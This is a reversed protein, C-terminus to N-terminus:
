SPQWACHWFLSATALAPLANAWSPKTGNGALAEGMHGPLQMVPEVCIYSGAAPIHLVVRSSRKCAVTISGADGSRLKAIGDWGSFVTVEGRIMGFVPSSTTETARGQADLEHRAKARMAVDNSTFSENVPHYPHWGISLPMVQASDNRVALELQLGHASLRISQHATFAWPWDANPQHTLQLSAFDEDTKVVQWVRRHTLGHLPFGQPGSQLRVQRGGFFFGEPALRNTFPIMPFAGAKPWDHPEFPQEDWPVLLPQPGGQGVWDLSALRGGAAPAM